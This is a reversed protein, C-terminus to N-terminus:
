KLVNTKSIELMVYQHRGHSFIRECFYALLFCICELILGCCEGGRGGGTM